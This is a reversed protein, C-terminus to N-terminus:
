ARRVGSFIVATKESAGVDGATRLEILGALGASGTHDVDIGTMDRARENAAALTAESVVIPRGATELMGKVVAVWDYTEDDLIGHAISRPATEWPWMFATRHTAAHRIAEEVTARGALEAVREYARALPAAGTTQATYVRPLRRLRGLSAARAFGQICASALAGGGVQIVIADLAPAGSADIMEYAITEGGEITLGNDPGQCCFPVAGAALAERFRLYCPDGSEGPVRPCTVLTAGLERLRALVAPSADPPVFARLPWEAARAIVAAALAANGCSAIALEPRGKTVGARELVLLHVMIGALHRGKHSGSVNGTENKVWVAGDGALGLAASLAECREFPTVRFGAGSVAAVCEDLAGVLSVYAQDEIGLTRAIQWSYLLRRYRIFPNQEGASPWPPPSDGLLRTIVHDVDRSAGACRCRFPYPEVEIPPPVAGCGACALSFGRM